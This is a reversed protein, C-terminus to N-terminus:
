CAHLAVIDGAYMACCMLDRVIHEETLLWRGTESNDSTCIYIYIYICVYTYVYIHIYIYIYIHTHM